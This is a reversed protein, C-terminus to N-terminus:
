ETIVDKPETALILEASDGMLYVTYLQEPNNEHNKILDGAKIVQEKGDVQCTMRADSGLTAGKTVNTDAIYYGEDYSSSPVVEKETITVNYSDENKNLEVTGLMIEAGDTTLQQAYDTRLYDVTIEPENITNGSKEEGCGTLVSMSFIVVALFVFSLGKLKNMMIRRYVDKYSISYKVSIRCKFIFGKLLILSFILFNYSLKEM